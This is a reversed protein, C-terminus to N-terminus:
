ADQGGPPPAAQLTIPNGEGWSFAITWDGSPMRYPWAAVPDIHGFTTDLDVYVEYGLKEARLCFDMDEGIAAAPNIQGQLWWPDGLKELVTRKILMGARGCAAVRLLGSKGKLEQWTYPVFRKQKTKIETFVSKYLVPMFPPTKRCTTPVVIDKDHHLMKILLNSDFQHDDDMYFVRKWDPNNQALRLSRNLSWVLNASGPRLFGSGRPAELAERSLEFMLYRPVTSCVIILTKDLGEIDTAIM